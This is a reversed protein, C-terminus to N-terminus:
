NNPDIERAMELYRSAQEDNGLQRELDALKEYGERSPAEEVLVQWGAIEVEIRTEPGIM